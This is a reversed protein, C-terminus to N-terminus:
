KRKVVLRVYKEKGHLKFRTGSANGKITRDIGLIEFKNNDFGELFTIPVGMEGYYDIPIDKIKDVNIANYNDYKPYLSPDYHKTLLYQKPPVVIDLNTYWVVNRFRVIDTERRMVDKSYHGQMSKPILFYATSNKFGYGLRLKKDMFLSFISDSTIHNRNGVLIFKKGHCDLFKILEKSKSFPPNTVVIDCSSVMSCFWSSGIESDINGLTKEHKGDYKTCQGFDDGKVKFSSILLSLGLDSFNLKFYKYFNSYAPNDCCCYVVKKFFFKRYHELEEEIDTMLTYFEDLKNAKAINM